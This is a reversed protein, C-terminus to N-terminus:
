LPPSTAMRMKDVAARSTTETRWDDAAKAAHLQVQMLPEGSATHELAMSKRGIHEGVTQGITGGETRGTSVGLTGGM